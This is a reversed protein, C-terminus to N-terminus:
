IITRGPDNFKLPHYLFLHPIKWGAAQVWWLWCMGTEIGCIEIIDCAKHEM